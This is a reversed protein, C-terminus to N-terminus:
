SHSLDARNKRTDIRGAVMDEAIGRIRAVEAPSVFDELVVWGHARYFAVHEPTVSYPM